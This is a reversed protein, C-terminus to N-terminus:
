FKPADMICTIPVGPFQPCGYNLNNCSDFNGTIKPFKWLELMLAELFTCSFKFFCETSTITRAWVASFINRTYNSKNWTVKTSFLGDRLCESAEANGRSWFGKVRQGKKLRPLKSFILNCKSCKEKSNALSYCWCFVLEKQPQFKITLSKKRQNKSQWIQWCTLLNQKLFIRNTVKTQWSQWCTLM